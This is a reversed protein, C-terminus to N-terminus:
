LSVILGMNLKWRIKAAPKFVPGPFFAGGGASLRLASQPAWQAQGYAEVGLFREPSAADLERDTFTELDTRWFAVAEGSLSFSLGPRATYSLRANMLGPLGAGLVRGQAITILPTFPIISNNVAGSGWRLEASLMDPLAGPVDWDAGLAAAFNAAPNKGEEEALGGTLTLSFRLSDAAEFGVLAELYQTHLADGSGNLDFQGLGTFSLSVRRGADPFEVSLPAFLRRPAFYTGPEGYDLPTNYRERDGATMLIEATKKYLLGTYFVGAYLRAGGLGASASLGDFLGSAIMGGDDRYRQRGLSLRLAEAPRFNAEARELEVLPPRAWAGSEGEYEFSIKGSVYVGSTEGALSFWPVLSGTFGAGASESVYEGEGNLVLGFDSARAPAGACLALVAALLAGKIRSPKM